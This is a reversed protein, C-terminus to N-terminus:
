TPLDSPVPLNTRILTIRLYKDLLGQDEDVTVIKFAENQGIDKNFTVVLDEPQLLVANSRYRRTMMTGDIELETGQKNYIRRRRRQIKCDLLLPEGGSDLLEVFTIQGKVDMGQVRRVSVQEDFLADLM